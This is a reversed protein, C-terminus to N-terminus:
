WGIQDHFPRAWHRGSGRGMNKQCWSGWLHENAEASSRSGGNVELLNSGGKAFFGKGRSELEQRPMESRSPRMSGPM